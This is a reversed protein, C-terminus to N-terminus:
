YARRFIKSFPRSLHCIQLEPFNKVIKFHTTKNSLKNCSEVSKLLHLGADLVLRISMQKGCKNSRYSLITLVKYCAHNQKFPPGFKQARLIGKQRGNHL